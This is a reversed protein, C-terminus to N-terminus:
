ARRPARCLSYRVSDCDISCNLQYTVETLQEDLFRESIKRCEIAEKVMREISKALVVNGMEKRAVAEEELLQAGCVRDMKDIYEMIASYLKREEATKQEM